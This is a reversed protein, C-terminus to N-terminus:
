LISIEKVVSAVTIAGIWLRKETLKEVMSSITKESVPYLFVILSAFVLLSFLIYLNNCKINKEDYINKIM